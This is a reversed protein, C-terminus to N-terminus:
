RRSLLVASVGAVLALVLLGSPGVFHHLPAALVAMLFTGFASIISLGGRRYYSEVPALRRWAVGASLCLASVTGILLLIPAPGSVVPSASAPAGAILRQVGWLTLAVLATGTAIAVAVGRIALGVLDEGAPSVM